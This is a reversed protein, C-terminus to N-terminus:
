RVWGGVMLFGIKESGRGLGWARGFRISYAGLLLVQDTQRIQRFLGWIALFQSHVLHVRCFRGWIALFPSHVLHTRDCIRRFREFDGFVVFSSLAGPLFM